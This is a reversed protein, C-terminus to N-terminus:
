LGPSSKSAQIRSAELQILDYKLDAGWRYNMPGHDARVVRHCPILIAIRNSACATGVARASQPRGIMHAVEGYTKTTGPPITRLAAWVKQQFVTGRLDLSITNPLSPAELCSVVNILLKEFNAGSPLRLANKFQAHFHKELSQQEKGLSVWCIGVASAAVLAMGLKFPVLGYQITEGTGHQKFCSPKTDSQTPASYDASKKHFAAITM